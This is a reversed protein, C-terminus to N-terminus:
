NIIESLKKYHQFVSFEKIRRKLILKNEYITNKNTNLFDDFKEKGWVINSVSLKM